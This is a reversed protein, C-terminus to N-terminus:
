LSNLNKFATVCVLASKTAIGLNRWGDRVTKIGTHVNTDKRMEIKYQNELHKHRRVHM